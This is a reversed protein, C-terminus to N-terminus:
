LRWRQNPANITATSHPAIKQSIQASSNNNLLQITLAIDSNNTVTISSGPKMIYGLAQRDQGKGKPSEGAAQPPLTYVEMSQSQVSSSNNAANIEAM